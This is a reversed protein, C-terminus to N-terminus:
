DSRSPRRVSITLGSASILAVLVFVTLWVSM